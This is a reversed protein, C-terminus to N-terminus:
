RRALYKDHAESVDRKGSGRRAPTIKLTRRASIYGREALFSRLAAQVVATLAPAAEQDSVYADLAQAIERDL